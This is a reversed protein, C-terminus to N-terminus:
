HDVMVSLNVKAGGAALTGAQVPHYFVNISYYCRHLKKSGAVCVHYRNVRGYAVPVYLLHLIPYTSSSVLLVFLTNPMGQIKEEELSVTMFEYSLTTTIGARSQQLYKKWRM